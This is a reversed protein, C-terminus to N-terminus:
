SKLLLVPLAVGSSADRSRVVLDAGMTLTQMGLPAGSADSWLQAPVQGFSTCLDPYAPYPNIAGYRVSLVVPWTHSTYGNGTAPLPSGDVPPFDRPEPWPFVIAVRGNADAIGQVTVAGDVVAQLVAGAAGQKTDVDQLDARIVARTSAVPYSPAPFLSVGDALGFGQPSLFPCGWVFLGRNPLQAPFSFPLYRGRLDEVEVVFGLPNALVRQWYADDGKGRENVALFPLNMAAFIRAGTATALTRTQSSALRVNVVLGDSVYQREVPDWFRVGLPCVRGFTELPLQTTM